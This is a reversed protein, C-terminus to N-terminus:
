PAATDNDGETSVPQEEEVDGMVVDGDVENGNVIEQVKTTEQKVAVSLDSVGDVEEKVEVEEKVAVEDLTKIPVEEVVVGAALAAASSTAAATEEIVVEKESVVVSNIVAPASVSRSNGSSGGSSGGSGNGNGSNNGSNNNGSSNGDQDNRGSYFEAPHRRNSKQNENMGAGNSEGGRAQTERGQSQSTETAIKLAEDYLIHDPPVETMQVCPAGKLYRLNEIVREKISDLQRVTNLNPMRSDAKLHLEYDPAWFEYSDNFPIKNSVDCGLLVSTEYSWCRSVNRITYGGGGLVLLPRNFSQVYKV